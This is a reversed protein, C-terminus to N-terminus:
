KINLSLLKKFPNEKKDFKVFKNTKKREGQFIYTDEIKDKKYNRYINGIATVSNASVGGAAWNTLGLSNLNLASFGGKKWYEPPTLRAIEQEISNVRNQANVLSSRAKELEQKKLELADNQGFANFILGFLLSCAFLKKM